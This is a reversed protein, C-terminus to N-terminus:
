PFNITYCPNSASCQRYFPDDTFFNFYFKVIHLSNYLNAAM